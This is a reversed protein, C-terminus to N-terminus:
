VPIHQGGKCIFNYRGIQRVHTHSCTDATELEPVLVGAEDERVGAVRCECGSVLVGREFSGRLATSFVISLFSSECDVLKQLRNNLRYDPYLYTLGPGTLQGERDVEGVVAGGGRVIRWATGVLVGDRHHGALVLRGAKDFYRDCFKYIHELSRSM